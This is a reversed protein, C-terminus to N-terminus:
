EYNGFISLFPIDNVRNICDNLAEEETEGEGIYENKGLTLGKKNRKEPIALYNSDPKSIAKKVKIELVELIPHNKDKEDLPRMFEYSSVKFTTPTVSVSSM